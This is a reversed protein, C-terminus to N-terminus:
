RHSRIERLFIMQACFSFNESCFHMDPEGNKAKKKNTKNHRKMQKGQDLLANSQTVEVSARCLDKDHLDQPWEKVWEGGGTHASM